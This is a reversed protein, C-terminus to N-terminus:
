PTNYYWSDGHEFDDNIFLIFTDWTWDRLHVNAFELCGTDLKRWLDLDLNHKKVLINVSYTNQRYLYLIFSNLVVYQADSHTFIWEPDRFGINIRHSGPTDSVVETM